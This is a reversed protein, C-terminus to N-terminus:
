FYTQKITEKIQNIYKEPTFKMSENLCNLKMKEIQSSNNICFDVCEYLTKFKKGPYLYGTFGECVVESNCNWNSAIVPLGAFFADLITGAFGEGKWHTPFLLMFYNKLVSVSEFPNIVNKYHVYKNSDLINKFESKYEDEINGYIDLECIHQNYFSNISKIVEAADSVGKEKNVRSFIAFRFVPKSYIITESINVPNLPKFNPMYKCNNIGIVKLENVMMNSEVWNVQFKNVVPIFQPHERLYNAFNGGIVYHFINIKKLKKFFNFFKLYVSLGNSSLAFIVTKCKLLAMVTKLFLYLKRKKYYTDILYISFQPDVVLDEYLIRTKITQGDFLDINTAVRGIFCIKIKKNKKTKM